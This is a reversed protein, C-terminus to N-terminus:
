VNKSADKEEDDNGELLKFIKWLGFSIVSGIFPGVWYIWQYVTFSRDAVCPGFSRAPNLGAGTTAVCVLHGLFLSLGISIANLNIPLHPNEVATFLVTTCLLATGFAELMLGRGKSVGLGLSNAFLIKGPTMASAAGAAAMGAIIQSVFMCAAKLPNLAGAMALTLTVAPNLNGGSIPGFITIAMAVSFGFGIAIVLVKSINVTNTIAYDTEKSDIASLYDHNSVQAIVFATWLFIFTGFFEGLVAMLIDMAPSMKKPAKVHEPGLVPVAPIPIDMKSDPSPVDVKTEAGISSNHQHSM